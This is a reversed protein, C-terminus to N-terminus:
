KKISCLILLLIKDAINHEQLGAQRREPPRREPGARPPPSPVHVEGHLGQVCIYLSYISYPTYLTLLATTYM